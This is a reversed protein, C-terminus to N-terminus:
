IKSFPRIVQPVKMTLAHLRRIYDVEVEMFMTKMPIDARM